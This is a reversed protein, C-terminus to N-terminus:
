TRRIARVLYRLSGAVLNFRPVRKMYAVYEAGLRTACFREERVSQIYFLVIATGGIIATLYHQSHLTFGLVLFIYGWAEETLLVARVHACAVALFRDHGPHAPSQEHRADRLLGSRSPYRLSGSRAHRM